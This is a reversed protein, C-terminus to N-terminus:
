VQTAWVRCVFDDWHSPPDPYTNPPTFLATLIAVVSTAEDVVTQHLLLSETM